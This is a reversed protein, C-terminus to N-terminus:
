VEEFLGHFTEDDIVDGTEPLIWDDDNLTVENYFYQGNHFQVGDTCEMCSNWKFARFPKKQYTKNMKIENEIRKAIKKLKAVATKEAEQYTDKYGDFLIIIGISITWYFGAISDTEIKIKM